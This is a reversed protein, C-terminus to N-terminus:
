TDADADDGVERRIRNAFAREAADDLESISDELLAAAVQAPAVKRHPSSIRDAIANLAEWTEPAFPVRRTLTWNPDTPRGGSSQLRENFRHALAFLGIPLATAGHVQQSGRSGLAEALAKDDHAISRGKTM